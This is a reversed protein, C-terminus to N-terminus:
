SHLKTGDAFVSHEGLEQGALGNALADQYFDRLTRRGYSPTAAASYAGTQPDLLLMSETGYYRGIRAFEAKDQLGPLLRTLFEMVAILGTFVSVPVELFRPKQGMLEFLLEARQKATLAEGPGGIPLIRNQLRVDELCDAMFAALDTEAIPKCAAAAGGFMVYPRGRKVAEIQGALSKFYATPRVISYTIGSEALSQEMRLKAHQFALCPKQVCIASLLVFHRAGAAQGLELLQRSATYDIRWSDAIGGHRSALCCYVADFQEGRFGKSLLSQRSTVDGFRLECDPLLAQAQERTMQGGVGSRDRLLCVVQHGRAALEAAVHRGIYGSAGAVFIRM